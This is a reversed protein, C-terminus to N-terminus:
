TAVIQQIILESKGTNTLIFTHKLVDSQKVEGFDFQTSDLTLRPGRAIEEASPPAITAAPALAAKQPLTPQPLTVAPRALTPTAKAPRPAPSVEAQVVPSQTAVSQVVPIPQSSFGCGAVLTVVLVGAALTLAGALQSTKSTLTSKSM